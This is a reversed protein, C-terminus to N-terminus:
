KAGAVGCVPCSFTNGRPFDITIDLHKDEMSFGLDKVKWPPPLGPAEAFLFKMDM